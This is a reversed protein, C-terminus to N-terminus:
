LSSKGARCHANHLIDFHVKKTYVGFVNEEKEQTVPICLECVFIINLNVRIYPPRHTATPSVSLFNWCPECLKPTFYLQQKNEKKPTVTKETLEQSHIENWHFSTSFVPPGSAELPSVPEQCDM